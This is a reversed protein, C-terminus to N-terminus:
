DFLNPAEVVKLPEILEPGFTIPRNVAKSVRYATMEASPHPDLLQLRAGVPLGPDLWQEHEDEALIVPMRDHIPIVIRNPRTTIITYAPQGDIEQWLGAFAFPQGDRLTIRFPLKGSPSALWEYFGDAIVLCRRNLFADKFAPKQNVTEARANILLRSKAAVWEPKFGWKAARVRDPERDLVVPLKDTPSAKYVPLRVESWGILSQFCGLDRMHKAISYAGCM